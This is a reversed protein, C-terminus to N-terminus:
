ETFGDIASVDTLSSKAVTPKQSSHRAQGFMFTGDM